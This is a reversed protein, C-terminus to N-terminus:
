NNLPRQIVDYIVTDLHTLFTDEHMIQNELVENSEEKAGKRTFGLGSGGSYAM